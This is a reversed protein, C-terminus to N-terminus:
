WVRSAGDGGEILYFPCVTLVICLLFRVKSFEKSVDERSLVVEQWWKMSAFM